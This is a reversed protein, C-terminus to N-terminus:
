IHMLIFMQLCNEMLFCTDSSFWNSTKRTQIIMPNQLRLSYLSNLYDPEMENYIGPLFMNETWDYFNVFSKITKLSREGGGLVDRCSYLVFIFIYLLYM